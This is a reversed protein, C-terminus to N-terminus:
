PNMDATTPQIGNHWLSHYANHVKREYEELFYDVDEVDENNWEEIMATLVEHVTMRMLTERQRGQRGQGPENRWGLIEKTDERVGTGSRRSHGSLGNKDSDPIPRGMRKDYGLQTTRPSQYVRSSTLCKM